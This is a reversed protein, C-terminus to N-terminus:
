ENKPACKSFMRNVIGNFDVVCDGASVDEEAFGVFGGVVLSVDFGVNGDVRGAYTRGMVVVDWGDVWVVVVWFTIARVNADCGCVVDCGFITTFNNFSLKEFEVVSLAFLVSLLAERAETESNLLYPLFPNTFGTFNTM